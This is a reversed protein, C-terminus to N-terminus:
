CILIEDVSRAAPDALFAADVDEDVQRRVDALTAAFLSTVTAAQDAPFAASAEAQWYRLERGIERELETLAASLQAAVYGDENADAGGFRGLRRPYLAASLTNVINAIAGRSPFDARDAGGGERSRWTDRSARLASVVAPIAGSASTGEGTRDSAFQRTSITAAM